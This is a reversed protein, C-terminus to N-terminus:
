KEGAKFMTRLDEKIGVLLEDMTISRALDADPALHKETQLVFTEMRGRQIVVPEMAALDLYRNMNDQLETSSIIVM